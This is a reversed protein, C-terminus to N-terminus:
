QLVAQLSRYQDAMRAFAKQGAQQTPFHVFSLCACDANGHCKGGASDVHQSNM